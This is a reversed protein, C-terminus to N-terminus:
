RFFIIGGSIVAIATAVTNFIYLSPEIGPYVMFPLGTAFILMTVLMAVGWGLIRRRVRSLTFRDFFAAVFGSVVCYTACSITPVLIQWATWSINPLAVDFYFGLSVVLVCTSSVLLVVLLVNPAWKNILSWSTREEERAVGDEDLEKTLYIFFPPLTRRWILFISLPVSLVIVVLLAWFANTMLHFLITSAALLFAGFILMLFHFPLRSHSNLLPRKDDHSDAGEDEDAIIGVEDEPNVYFFTSEGEDLM